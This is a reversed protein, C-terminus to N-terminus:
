FRTHVARFKEQNKLSEHNALFFKFRKFENMQIDFRLSHVQIFSSFPHFMFILANFSFLFILYFYALNLNQYMNTSM